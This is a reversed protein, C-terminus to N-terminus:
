SYGADIQDHCCCRERPESGHRRQDRQHAGDSHRLYRGGATRRHTFTDILVDHIRAEFAKSFTHFIGNCVPMKRPTPDNLNSHVAAYGKSAVRAEALHLLHPLILALTGLIIHLADPFLCTLSLDRRAHLIELEDSIHTEQMNTELPRHGRAGQKSKKKKSTHTM